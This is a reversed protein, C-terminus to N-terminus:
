PLLTSENTLVARINKLQHVYRQTHYLVFYLLELKTTEGFTPISIMESLNVKDRLQTLQAISKKLESVITEKQYTNKTPLIFEPSKYKKTFDLFMAKLEHAGEAPDRDVQTGQMVLAQAIGKNSKIVHSALQAVTWSDKFPITNIKNESLSSILQQLQLSTEDLSEFLEKTNLRETTM